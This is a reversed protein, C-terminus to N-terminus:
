FNNKNFEAWHLGKINNLSNMKKIKTEETNERQMHPTMNIWILEIIQKDYQILNFM